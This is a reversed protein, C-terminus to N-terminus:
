EATQRDLKHVVVREELLVDDRLPTLGLREAVRVSRSNAPSIMATVYPVDFDRFAWDICARGAETALGKGWAERRLVWGVETEDFQPWYKLGCRGLFTESSRDLIALLGHGRECWEEEDRDLRQKAEAHSLPRIFETVEPDSHLAAFNDLDEAGFPRLRLRRTEILV